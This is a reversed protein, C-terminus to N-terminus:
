ADGDALDIEVGRGAKKALRYALMALGMESAGTGNNNKHYTIQEAGARGAAGLSRPRADM